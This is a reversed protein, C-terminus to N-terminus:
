NRMSTDTKIKMGNSAHLDDYENSTRKNFHQCGVTFNRLFFNPNKKETKLLFYNGKLLYLM